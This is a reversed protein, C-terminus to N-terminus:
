DIIVVIADDQHFLTGSIIASDIIRGIAADAKVVNDEVVEVDNLIFVNPFVLLILLLLVHRNM